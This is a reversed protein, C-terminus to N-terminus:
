DPLTVVASRQTRYLPMHCQVRKPVLSRQLDGHFETQQQADFLKPIMLPGGMNVGFRNNGYSSKAQEQGNLSFPRANFASNQATYFVQIRIRNDSRRARNGIFNRTRDAAAAATGAEAAVAAADAELSAEEVVQFAALAAGALMSTAVVTAEVVAADAVAVAAAPRNTAVPAVWVALDTSSARIAARFAAMKALAVPTLGRSIRSIRVCHM